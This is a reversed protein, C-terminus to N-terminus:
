NSRMKQRILWYQSKKAGRQFGTWGVSSKGIRDWCNKCIPYRRGKEIVIVSIDRNSCCNGKRSFEKKGKLFQGAMCVESL